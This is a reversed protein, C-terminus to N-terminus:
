SRHYQRVMWEAWEFWQQQESEGLSEWFLDGKFIELKHVWAM